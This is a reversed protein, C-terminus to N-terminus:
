QAPEDTKTIATITNRLSYMEHWHAQAAMREPIDPQSHDHAEFAEWRLLEEATIEPLMATLQDITNQTLM